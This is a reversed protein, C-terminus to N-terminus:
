DELAELDSEEFWVRCPNGHTDTYRVWYNNPTTSAYESRGIVTGDLDTDVIGVVENLEFLFAM